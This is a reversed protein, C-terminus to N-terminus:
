NVLYARNHHVITNIFGACVAFGDPGEATGDGLDANWARSAMKALVVQDFTVPERLLAVLSIMRGARRRRRRWYLWVAVGAAAATAVLTIWIILQVTHPM